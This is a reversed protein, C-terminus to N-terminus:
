VVTVALPSATITFPPATIPYTGSRPTATVTATGPAVARVLAQGQSYVVECIATNSSSLELWTDLGDKIVQYDSFLVSMPVLVGDGTPISVANPTPLTPDWELSVPMPHILDVLNASSRDPVLFNWLTDDDGSFTVYFEGGRVLDFSIFGDHNTKGYLSQGVVMQSDIVKPVAFGTEGKPSIIVTVGSLPQNAPTVFRGTCRCCRPDTAAQLTLPAGVLDYAGNQTVEIRFPQFGIGRKYARLEYTANPLDFGAVGSVGTVVQAVTEIPAVTSVVSVTVGELPLPILANSQVLVNVLAM